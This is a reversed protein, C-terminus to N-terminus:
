RESSSWYAFICTFMYFVMALANDNRVVVSILNTEKEPREQAATPRM